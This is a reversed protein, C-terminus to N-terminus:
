RRPSGGFGGRAGFGLAKRAPTTPGRGDGGELDPTERGGSPGMGKEVRAGPAKYGVKFGKAYVDLLIQELVGADMFEEYKRWLKLATHADEVSDHEEMQIEENLLIWALFRLSLKRQRAPIYFLDVTDVVQAKPVHINITRFDKPLGHGVFIVGLNLLLWLKKYAVKLSVLAHKSTDRNLDGPSIGSYATLYDVVPENIAIYDDIFPLGQDPGSGRLVSVRALGLRPPRITERTGDAKIEIEERQLAVFEADIAFPTGPRPAETTSNLLRFTSPDEDQPTTWRRYLLSPDLNEKWSDDITHSASKVQYALVSPLKWSPDFRLAEEKSTVRVLFDNFLHWQNEVQPDLSSPAVNIMGVLHPKQNEGSNIDAVFGVLEYVVTNFSGRQLHFKLDEGEYCFFSGKDTIIGIESPLWNPTSWLQKAEPSHLAANILLVAPVTQVTKESHIERYTNCMNCFGRQKEKREVSAKLIQSFTMARAPPKKSQFRLYQEYQHYMMEHVLVTGPKTSHTNCHACRMHAVARTSVAQELHSAQPSMQRYETVIKELIFRNFNQIMTTLASNPAHEEILGFSLANSLGSFTKLFNTAQCNQGDAKELMDFLFGMECLLCNEFLCSTAAHRLALNRLMPTFKFVQLLPNAYSNAIHTELGSFKTKNYFKFDFDDVGFKSYKIEVNRYMVPVEAKTSGDLLMDGFSELADSMRRDGSQLQPDRAKESLFKPAVLSNEQRDSSRTNEVQNRRTKRPNPGYFGVEPARKLNALIAPDVKPLPAGVEFVMHSPWASLLTERYYPIGVTSLPTDPQWDVSPVPLPTDPFETPNSYETFQMKAPSGWLHIGAHGDSLAFADGSPALEFATFYSDYPYVQRVDSTHPNMLDVIQLSGAQSMVISTTSMRPHMRVFAAGSQFPIPALQVLTKLDFVKAFSDLSYGHATHPRPSYGCTVVYDSKADMDHIWSQHANWNRVLKFTNPDLIHVAGTSTAACIYQGGKKMLTYHDEAPLTEVIVGKEVDVRFMTDQCGAVLIESSGKATFSICRLDKFNEDAVHWQALGRRSSLHISRTSISIIGKPAFLLQKVHGESSPHAKFSTYKQLEAGYFSSVRGYENGAWLLEQSPDFALTTAPTPLARDQPGPGPLFIRAVEDWDAEM